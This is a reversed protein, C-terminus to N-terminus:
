WGVGPTRRIASAPIALQERRQAVRLPEAPASVTEWPSDDVGGQQPVATHTALVDMKYTATHVLRRQADTANHHLTEASHYTAPDPLWDYRFSDLAKLVSDQPM